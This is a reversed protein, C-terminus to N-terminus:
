RCPEDAQARVPQPALKRRRQWAFWAAAVVATLTAAALGFELGYFSEGFFMHVRVWWGPFALLDAPGFVEASGTDLVYKGPLGDPQWVLLYYTGTQPLDLEVRQRGWYNTQTFPEYFDAGRATPFILGGLNEPHNEPLLAHNVAPLGPGLLAVSVGYNELGPIAPINIGAHLHEGAKAEFTYVEAQAAASIDRYFAFSTSLNEIPMVGNATGDGWVPRHASAPAAATFLWGLIVAAGIGRQLLHKITM